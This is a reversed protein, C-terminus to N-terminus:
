CTSSRLVHQPVFNGCFEACVERQVPRFNDLCMIHGSCKPVESSWTGAVRRGELMDGVHSFAHDNKKKAEVRGHMMRGRTYARQSLQNM